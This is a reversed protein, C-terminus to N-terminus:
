PVLHAHAKANTDYSHWVGTLDLPVGYNDLLSQRMTCLSRVQSTAVAATWPVSNRFHYLAEVFAEISLTKGGGIDLSYAPRADILGAALYSYGVIIRRLALRHQDTLSNGKYSEIRTYVTTIAREAVLELWRAEHSKPQRKLTVPPPNSQIWACSADESVSRLRESPAHATLTNEGKM